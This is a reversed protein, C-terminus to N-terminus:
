GYRASFGKSKGAQGITGNWLINRMTGLTLGLEACRTHFNGYCQIEEGTPTTIIIHKANPNGSNAQSPKNAILKAIEEDSKTRSYSILDQEKTRKARGERMKQKEEETRTKGFMGNKDGPLAKLQNPGLAKQTDSQKQRREPDSWLITLDASRQRRRDPDSWLKTLIQSMYQRYEDEKWRARQREGLAERREPTWLSVSAQSMLKKAIEYMRPTVPVKGAHTLRNLAFAMKHKMPGDLMRVLLMHCVFHERASLAVINSNDNSGGLSKPIIHHKETYCDLKHQSRHYIINYYWRTYKNQKFM